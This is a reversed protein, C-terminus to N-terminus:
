KVRVTKTGKKLLWKEYDKKKAKPVKFTAKPNINRFAGNKVNKSTLLTSKVTITKLKVCDGFANKGISNVKKGITFETLAACGKFANADIKVLNALNPLKSLKIDSAFAGKGIKAVKKGGKVTKLKKCGEFAGAGIEKVNNGITVTKLKKKGKFAKDAIKTVPVSTNGVMVTNPITVTEKDGEPKFSATGDALVTYTGIDDSVTDGAQPEPEPQQQQIWRATLTINAVIPTNAFDFPAESEGPYWDSFDYEERTPDAPRRAKDGSAVIQDDVASGGASDFSVRYRTVPADIKHEGNADSFLAHCLACEWYTETGAETASSVGPHEVLQHATADVPIVINTIATMCAADSFHEKCKSCTWYEPNGATTCTAAKAATHAPEKDHGLAPIELEETEQCVSCTHTATGAATCTAEATTVSESWAHSACLVQVPLEVRNEGATWVITSNGGDVGNISDGSINLITGATTWSPNILTIPVGFYGASTDAEISPVTVSGGENVRVSEVTAAANTLGSSLLLELSVDVEYPSVLIEEAEGTAKSCFAQCWFYVGNAKVCGIGIYIRSSDLMNRRHGQGSYKDEEERWGNFVDQSSRYGAAINEARGGTQPYISKWDEGNPRTHSYRIACEAARKMAVKEMGYDLVMDPLDNLFTKTTDDSNWYWVDTEHRFANVLPLVDRAMQYEYTLDVSVNIDGAAAATGALMLVLALILVCIAPIKGNLLFWKRKM